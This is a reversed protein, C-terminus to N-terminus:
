KVKKMKMKMKMLDEDFRYFITVDIDELKCKIENCLNVLEKSHINYDLVKLIKLIIELKINMNFLYYFSNRFKDRRKEKDIIDKLKVTICRNM